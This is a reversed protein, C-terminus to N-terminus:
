TTTFLLGIAGAIFLLLLESLRLGFMLLLHRRVSQATHESFYLWSHCFIKHFLMSRVKLCFHSLNLDRLHACSLLVYSNYRNYIRVWNQWEFDTNIHIKYFWGRQLHRWITYLVWCDLQLPSCTLFRWELVLMYPLFFASCFFWLSLFTSCHLINGKGATVTPCCSVVYSSTNSSFGPLEPHAPAAWVGSTIKPAHM